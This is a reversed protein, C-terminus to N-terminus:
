MIKASNSTKKPNSKPKQVSFLVCDMPVLSPGGLRSFNIVSVRNHFAAVFSIAVPKFGEFTAAPITYFLALTLHTPREAIHIYIHHM